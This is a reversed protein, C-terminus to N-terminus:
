EISHTVYVRPKIRTFHTVSNVTFTIPLTLTENIMGLIKTKSLTAPEYTQALTVHPMFDHKYHIAQAAPPLLRMLQSQLSYLSFSQAQVYCIRTGFFGICDLTIAMPLYRKAIEHIRPILQSPLIGQLSPPHLLTVHPLVPQLMHPQNDYLRWKLETIQRDLDPPLSVGIFYISQPPDDIHKDSANTMM